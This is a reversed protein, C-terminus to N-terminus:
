GEVRRLRVVLHHVGEPATAREVSGRIEYLAGAHAVRMTSTIASDAALTLEYSDTIAERGEAMEESATRTFWGLEQYQGAPPASWDAVTDGYATTTRAPETLTVPHVLFSALRTM